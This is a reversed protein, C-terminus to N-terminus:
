RLVPQIEGREMKPYETLMGRREAEERLGVGRALRDAKLSKGIKIWEAQEDPVECTGGCRHCTMEIVPSRPGEYGERYLPFFGLLKGTECDPCKM